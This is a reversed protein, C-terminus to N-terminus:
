HALQQQRRVVSAVPSPGPLNPGPCCAASATLDAAAESSECKRWQLGPADAAAAVAVVAVAAAVVECRQLLDGHQPLHPQKALGQRAQTSPSMRDIAPLLPSHCVVWQCCLCHCCRQCCRPLASQVQHFRVVAAAVAVAFAVELVLM